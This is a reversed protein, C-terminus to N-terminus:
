RQVDDQDRELNDGTLFLLSAWLARSFPYFAIPLVVAVVALMALAPLIPLSSYGVAMGGGLVLTLVLVTNIAMGGTVEGSSSEFPM